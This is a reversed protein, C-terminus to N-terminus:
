PWKDAHLQCKDTYLMSVELTFIFHCDIFYQSIYVFIVNLIHRVQEKNCQIFFLSHISSLSFVTRLLSFKLSALNHDNLHHFQFLPLEYFLWTLRVHKASFCKVREDYDDAAGSVAFLRLYTQLSFIIIRLESQNGNLRFIM